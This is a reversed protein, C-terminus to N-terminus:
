VEVVREGGRGRKGAGGVKGGGVERGDEENRQNCGQM